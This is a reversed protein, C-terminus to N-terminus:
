SDRPSPSTYLLCDKAIKLSALEEGIRAIEAADIEAQSAAAILDATLQDIVEGSEVVIYEIRDEYVIKEKEVIITEIAAKIAKEASQKTRLDHAKVAYVSGDALIDYYMNGKIFGKRDNNLHWVCFEFKDITGAIEEGRDFHDQCEWATNLNDLQVKYNDAFAAGSVAVLATTILLNKM